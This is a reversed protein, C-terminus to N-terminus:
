ISKLNAIKWVLYVVKKNLVLSILVSSATLFRFSNEPLGFQTM